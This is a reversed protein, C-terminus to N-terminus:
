KMEEYIVQVLCLGEAPATFGAAQRDKARLIDDVTRWDREGLGIEILTGTLIRVMNQLFGNGTFSLTVLSSGPKQCIDVSYLTRVTSKKMKRNGCFSRFDHTGCLREAALRMVETDLSRGLHYSLRRQFVDQKEGTEIQYCYTKREASLRSHFREPVEEVSLVGIDDPLYRNLYSKLYAEEQRFFGEAASSNRLSGSIPLRGQRMYAQMQADPARCRWRSEQWENWFRSWSEKFPTQLIARSRGDM